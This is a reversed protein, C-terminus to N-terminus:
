ARELVAVPFQEFVKALPLKDGEITAGTFVNKWTGGRPLAADGWVDGLPFVGPKVLATLLRPVAVIVDDGRAFACVNAGADIAEYGADGFRSRMELLRWMVFMKVRGSPWSRLLADFDLSRRGYAEKINRLMASRREYDVARRNDPDVLSFDWLETGQYFDPVGPACLKLVTQSLANLAGYFAIRKHFRM